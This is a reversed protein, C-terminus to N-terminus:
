TSSLCSCPLRTVRPGVQRFCGCVWRIGHLEYMHLVGLPCDLSGLADMPQGIVVLHNGNHHPLHYPLYISFFSFCAPKHTTTVPLESSSFTKFFPSIKTIEMVLTDLGPCSGPPMYPYMSRGCSSDISVDVIWTSVLVVPKGPDPSGGTVM